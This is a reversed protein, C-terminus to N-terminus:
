EETIDFQKKVLAILEQQLMRHYDCANPMEQISNKMASMVQGLQMGETRVKGAPWYYGVIQRNSEMAERDFIFFSYDHHAFIEHETIQVIKM